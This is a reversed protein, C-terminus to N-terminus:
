QKTIREVLNFGEGTIRILYVGKVYGSFDLETKPGDFDGKWIQQGQMNMVEVNANVSQGLDIALNNKVPNPYVVIKVDAPNQIGTSNISKLVSIGNDAFLGDNNYAVDFAVGIETTNQQQANWKVFRMLEGQEFGDKEPTTPDDGYATISIASGTWEAFGFCNGSQDTVGIFDGDAFLDFGTANAPVAIVHSTSTPVVDMWISPPKLMGTAPTEQPNAKLDCQPFQITAASEMKVYYAKGPTLDVLTNISYDPWYLKWGAVEKVMIVGTGQFLSEVDVNCSSLVPILNWGADLDLSQGGTNGPINLTVENTVKIKYGQLYDWNGITNVNEAPWWSDQMSQLIVLEDIVPAFMDELNPNQPDIWTSIGSWGAPIVTTQCDYLTLSIVDTAQLTCPAQPFGTLTLDVSGATADGEGPTYLADLIEPNDFTGDGATTWIFGSVNEAHGNLQYPANACAADDEGANALPVELITITMCDTAPLTCPDCPQVTLCLDITGLALDFGGPTYTTELSHNDSFTGFGSTTWTVACAGTAVGTLSVPQGECVNQDPGANAAPNTHITITLCDTAETECPDCSSATFCIEVSGNAIDDAGPTYVPNYASIDSFQGDGNTEWGVSCENNATGSLQVTETECITVDNGADATAQPTITLTVCDQASVSCPDCSFAELCLTVIGNAIDDAGPTYNASLSGADDFSGDGQSTWSWNCANEVEGALTYSSNECVDADEGAFATAPPQITITLCSNTSGSCPDCAYAELCLEASGNAIDQPGPVYTADLLINNDFTGDGSTSWSNGCADSVMGNLMVEDGECITADDGAFSQPQPSFFLTMCDSGSVSCPDCAAAELCLEVSGEILDDPSAFYTANAAGSDDFTGTGSTTWILDCANTVSGSLQYFGPNECVTADVGADATPNHIIFLTMCDVADECPACGEAVLCLQVTGTVIDLQGPFYTANTMTIDDFTGDGATTWYSGCEGSYSGNLLYSDGECITADTGASATSAPQITLTMCDQAGQTSPPAPQAELCLDVTGNTIDQTGPFYTPNMLQNDSFTGDGSTTWLLSSYNEVTADALTFDGNECITADPGADVEPPTGISLTLCDNAPVSCPDVPEAILCLDVSGNTIDNSGPTYVPSLLGSDDFAGDGSTTWHYSAANTVVADTVQYYDGALITADAGAFATPAHTFTITIPDSVENVCPSCPYAKLTLTVTGSTFDDTGPFYVANLATVDSFTGDGSSAWEVGCNNTAAGNLQYNEGECVTADEGANVVQGPLLTLTMCDSAPTECSGCPLGTICLEVNGTTVDGPGPYYTAGAITNDDFTGDGSTEWVIGCADQVNPELIYPDSSCVTADAGAGVVPDSVFSLTMSGTMFNTCPSCPFAFLTLSVSGNSYDNTSPHYTPTLSGSNTFNGSGSSQWTFGCGNELTANITYSDGYCISADPGPDPQPLGNIILEMCDTTETTCPECPLAVICLQAAGNEIDLAGPTYKPTLSSIDDFTGDGSTEWYFDCNNSVSGSLNATKNECITINNGANAEPAVLLTMTLCDSATTACPNCPVAEMCINVSGNSMDQPGPTYAPQLASIDDFTGDGTTSWVLDCFNEATAQITYPQNGCLTVDEGASATPEYVVSLVMCDTASITAPPVPDAHLCLEVSGSALDQPGMFYVPNVATNDDFSGDGDTTWQLASYNEASADAVLYETEACLTVDPGASIVPMSGIQLLMCDQASVECPDIPQATLCLEAGFNSEDATGHYYAPNLATPDDFTGDGSTEWLLLSYNDATADELQYPNGALVGDDSGAYATPGEQITVTVCDSDGTSCPGCADAVICIEFSGTAIDNVGPSYSPNLLSADDFTGDGSTTWAYGCANQASAITTFVSGACITADAGADVEPLPQFCLEMEDSASVACPSVPLAEITLIICGADIDSVSPIYEPNLIQPNDFSGTGNSTWQVGAQNDASVGSFQYTDNECITQDDGANVSPAGQINLLMCDTAPEGCPDCGDATLCIQVFGNAIDQPGPTYNASGLSADDFTGDGTTGWSLGCANEVSGNLQYTGGECIEANAGADATPAPQITIIMCDSDPTVCPDCPFADLCVEAFGLMKDITGPYYASNLDGADSFTGDGSTSWEYGCADNVSGNLTAFGTECIFADDGANAEPMPRFCLELNDSTGVSCPDLPAVTVQLTICGSIHDLFSPVYTAELEGPNIFEGTGSTTAWQLTGYNTGNAGSTVFNDGECVTADPGADIVPNMQFSLTMCDSVTGTAPPIAEASICLEVNGSAIDSASPFYTPNVVSPDDFTGEGSTSWSITQFNQATSENLTLDQDECILQDTGASVVPYPGIELFLCDSANVTCPDIAYATLCLNVGNNAIDASGPTYVPNLITNDDFNGDGNSSWELSTYNAADAETLSYSQGEAIAGDEGAYAFPGKQIVLDLCDSVSGSCPDCSNVTLCLGVTGTEIDASGPFYVADTTLPNSFTGDGNTTWEYGCTNAVVPTLTFNEGECILGDEGAAVEPQLQFCLSRYDEATTSCPNVPQAFIGLTICGANYDAQSPTYVPDIINANNFTGTGDSTFWQIGSAYEVVADTIELADGECITADAGAYAAPNQQISLEMCDSASVTCPDCAFAEICLTVQGAAIDASGPIYTAMELTTNDFNGDGSTTWVVGCANAIVPQTQFVGDECISADAGASVAPEPQISVDMCDTDNITCPDCAEATLCIQVIGQSIDDVGPTYVATLSGANDFNGDGQSEWYFGCANEASGSLQVSENECITMDNGANAVPLLRFCVELEDSAALLCPDVPLATVGLTICGLTYDSAAPYYIPKLANGNSFTGSGEIATWQIQSYNSATTQDLSVDEGECVTIDNGTSVSPEQQISLIMCNNGEQTSPPIPQATICLEVSGATIDNAGPSYVPNIATEDSFTGDGGSVWLISSYNDATAQDLSYDGGACISADPGAYVNPATGIVLTLCDVDTVTCPAIAEATLCLEVAGNTKDENGPSYTPNLIENDDFSGDGASSWFFNGTNSVSADTNTYTEDEPITADDGAYAEPQPQISLVMEDQLVGSCPSIALISVKLTVAQNALDLTGPTYTPNENNINDFSGDGDSTWILSAYDQASAGSLQVVEDDCITVDPGASVEPPAQFCLEMQDTAAVSCPAIPQATIELTVCGLQYDAADPTYVPNVAQANDFSGFGDPTSWQLQDFDSASAGALTFDEEYCVTADQGANASVAKQITINVCDFADAECPNCASATLCLEASGNMIDSAGPFYTATLSTADDFTGDGSSNWSLGCYNAATADLLLNEGECLDADEGAYVTPQRLITVVMCDTAEVLCPACADAVVCLEVQGNAIDNAGPTYIPNEATADTFSGDGNSSWQINCQNGITASVTVQENECITVDQGADALPNKQITLDLCDSANVLCPNCAVATLCLQATGLSIDGAGPFYQPSLSADNSFTGDGSTNWVLDCYNSALGNLFVDDTECITLDSGANAEPLMEITLVMCDSANASCPNCADAELCLTVTGAQIDLPGPSYEPTLGAPTTFTGDGTTTWNLGCYHDANGILSINEGECIAADEGVSVSPQQQITLMLCDNANNTCPACADATLCIEVSGSAIDNTGPFYVTSLSTENGFTGDGNSSWLLGCDQDASGNLQLTEGECITADDGALASPEQSITVQLADQAATQCPDIAGAILTLSVNGNDLDNAGPLYTTALTTPTGFTGDGSSTWQISNYNQASGSLNITAPLCISQDSGADAIPAPSVSVSVADSVTSVGDNVEVTYTTNEDPYAMPNQLTSSFGAPDSSWQYTYNTTGGSADAFLQVGDGQCIADPTATATVELLGTLIQTLSSLGNDAFTGDSNPLAQNYAVNADKEESTGAYFVKWMLEEGSAFGEKEPDTTPDDGFATVVKNNEDDWIAYGGCKQQNNEDLYFVGLFDGYNLPDGIVQVSLPVSILHSSGTQIVDWGTPYDNVDIYANKTEVSINGGSDEVELTVSYEGSTNYYIAPPVKGSWTAPTGGTFTWSWSVPDGTSLDLFNVSNGTAILNVNSQFDATVAAMLKNGSAYISLFLPLLIVVLSLTFLKKM